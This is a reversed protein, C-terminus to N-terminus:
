GIAFCPAFGHSYHSSTPTLTQENNRNPHYIVDMFQSTSYVDRTWMDAGSWSSGQNPVNLGVRYPPNGNAYYDFTKVNNTYESSIRNVKGELWGAKMENCALLWVKEESSSAGLYGASLNVNSYYITITKIIYKLDSPLLQYFNSCMNKLFSNAYSYTENTSPVPNSNSVNHALARTAQYEDKIETDYYGDVIVADYGNMNNTNAGTSTTTFYLTDGNDSDSDIHILRAYLPITSSGTLRLTNTASPNFLIDGNIAIPHLSGVTFKQAALGKKAIWQIEAWTCANLSFVYYSLVYLTKVASSIGTYNNGESIQIIVNANGPHFGTRINLTNGSVSAVAVDSNTSTIVLDGDGVYTVSVSTTSSNNDLTFNETSMSFSPTAKNITWTCAVDATTSDAWTTNTSNKLSFNITYTGANIATDTGSQNEYTSNFNNVTPSHSNTDYTYTTNSLSPKTLRMPSITWTRTVVATDTVGNEVWVTNSTSKLSFNISYTGANIATDSTKNEYTSNFDSITPSHENGDYTFSGSVSPKALQKPSITWSCSKAATTNDSWAYTSKPTIKVTYTGANTASTTSSLDHYASNYGSLYTSINKTNGDYTITQSQSFTSNAASLKKRVIQWTLTVDSTSGDAWKTNSKDKLAYTISYTGLAIATDTGTKTMLNSDFNAVTPSVNGGSWEVSSTTLTPKAIGDGYTIEWNITIADQSGDAWEVCEAVRFGNADKQPITYTVSYEGVNTAKSNGTVVLYQSVEYDGVVSIINGTFTFSTQTAVPKSLKLKHIIFTVPVPTATGDSWLYNPQPVVFFTFTGAGVSLVQEGSNTGRINHFAKQTNTIAIRTNLNANATDAICAFFVQGRGLFTPERAAAFGTSLEASLKARAISWSLSVDATSGDQWTTNDKDKLTYTATYTGANTESLTGSFTMTTSDYNNVTITKANGDYTFSSDGSITPKTIPKAGISWNIQVAATTNDSWKYNTTSNLTFTVTYNGKASASDTGSKTMRSSNYNSFTLTKTAGDYEFSTKSATPKALSMAGITWSVSKAAFTGDNWAYNALPTVKATYTGANTASTDSSKSHYSSNFNTITVNQSNGTYTLTGSQSFTSQTSTLKKRTITWTLVVDATTDDAWKTNTKDLLSYTITYTGANVGSIDGAQSMHASNFNAVTPKLTSGTFEQSAGASITPKTLKNTKIEWDIKVDATTSDNWSYNNKDKLAFSVSYTGEASASYTGTRTMYTSNYNSIDLTFTSGTYEFEVAAATPKPLKYIGITWAVNKAATTGDSFAYNSKPAVVATYSGANTASTTSSLDHYNADYGTISVTQANGTYTLTGNQSFTSQAATLKKRTITWSIVVNATSNDQWKTNTTDNLSYTATYSGANIESTSGTLTEYNSNFNSVSLNKSSGSYEFTTTSASPKTLKLVAISWSISVNGTTGDSWTTNTTNKLSYTSTYTGAATATDSGTHNMYNSDYNSVSIGQASKNYTFATTSASPKALKKANIKWSIVKDTTTGDSWVYNTTSKLKYTSSYTGANVAWTAGSQNICDSNPSTVSITINSGTYEFETVSATPITVSKAKIKWAISKDSTTGDSWVYNTASKLKYTATYNAANTAKVTGTQSSGDSNPNTVNLSIESGTYTFETVSATPIQISKPYIRWSVTKASRTGDAWCYLGIPTFTVDYSGANTASTTGAITMKQDEYNLWQPSQSSGTYQPSGNQSPVAGIFVSTDAINEWGNQTLLMKQSSKPPAPVLGNAGDKTETSPVFDKLSAQVNSVASTISNQLTAVNAARTTAEKNIATNLASQASTISNQLSNVAAARTTGENSIATTLNTQLANIATNRDSIEKTIASGLSATQTNRTSIESSLSNQLSSDANSRASQEAQISATLDATLTEDRKKSLTAENSIATNLNSVIPDFKNNVTNLLASDASIFDQRLTNDGSTRNAIEADLKSQLDSIATTRKATESDIAAQFDQRLSLDDAARLTVEDSLDSWLQNVDAKIDADVSERAATENAIANNIADFKEKDVASKISAEIQSERPPVNLTYGM